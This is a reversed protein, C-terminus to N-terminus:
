RKYGELWERNANFISDVQADTWGHSYYSERAANRLSDLQEDSLFENFNLDLISQEAKKPSWLDGMEKYYQEVYSYEDDIYRDLVSMDVGLNYGNDKIELDTSGVEGSMDLWRIFPTADYYLTVNFIEYPVLESVLVQVKENKVTDMVEVYYRSMEYAPCLRDGHITLFKKEKESKLMELYSGTIMYSPITDQITILKNGYTPEDKFTCRRYLKARYSGFFCINDIEKPLKPYAYKIIVKQGMVGGTNKWINEVNFLVPVEAIVTFPYLKTIVQRGDSVRVTIDAQGIDVLDFFWTKPNVMVPRIVSSDSSTVSISSYKSDVPYTNVYAMMYRLDKSIQHREKWSLDEYEALANVIDVTNTSDAVIHMYSSHESKHIEDFEEKTKFPNFMPEIYDNEYFFGLKADKMDEKGSEPHILEQVTKVEVAKMGEDCSYLCGTALLVVAAAFLFKRTIM